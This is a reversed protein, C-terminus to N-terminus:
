DGSERSDSHGESERSSRADPESSVIPVYSVFGTSRSTGSVQNHRLVYSNLRNRDLSASGRGGESASSATFGVPSAQRTFPQDLGSSESVFGSSQEPEATADAEAVGSTPEGSGREMLDSNLGVIAMVAVTAAIAGGAVPRLLRSRLPGVPPAEDEIARAVRATLDERVPVQRNLCSRVLHYRRWTAGLRTDRSLRRIFFRAGRRDMEGDMLASLHERNSDSM